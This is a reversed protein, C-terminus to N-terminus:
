EAPPPKRARPKAPKAKPKAAKAKAPKPKPKGARPKAARPPADRRRISPIDFFADAPEDVVEEAPEAPIAEPEARSFQGTLVAWVALMVGTTVMLFGIQVLVDRVTM